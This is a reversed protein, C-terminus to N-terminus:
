KLTNIIEQTRDVGTGVYLLSPNQAKDIVVDAGNAKAYSEIAGFVREQIPKLIEIREKMLTGDSGFTQEQFKTASEERSLIAAEIEQRRATSYSERLVAYNNFLQEVEDFMADVQKQYSESLLEIKKVAILYDQQSKFITESDVVIVSEAMAVMSCCLAALSVLGKKLVSKM